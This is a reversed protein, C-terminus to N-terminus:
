LTERNFHKFLKIEKKLIINESLKEQLSAELKENEKQLQAKEEELKKKEEELKRKEEELRTNQQKLDYNRNALEQNLVPPEHKYRQDPDIENVFFKKLYDKLVDEDFKTQKINQPLDTLDAWMNYSDSFDFVLNNHEDYYTELPKVLRLRFSDYEKVVIFRNEGDFYEKYEHTVPNHKDDRSLLHYVKGTEMWGEKAKDLSEQSSFSKFYPHHAPWELKTSLIDGQDSHYMGPVFVKNTYSRLDTELHIDM